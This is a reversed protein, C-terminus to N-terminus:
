EAPLLMPQRKARRPATHRLSFEAVALNVLWGGWLGLGIM